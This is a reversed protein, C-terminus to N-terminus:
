EGFLLKDLSDKSEQQRQMPTVGVLTVFEGKSIGRLDIQNRLADQILDKVSDPAHKLLNVFGETILTNAVCLFQSDAQAHLRVWEINRLDEMMGAVMEEPVDLDFIEHNVRFLAQLEHVLVGSFDPQNTISDFLQKAFLGDKDLRAYELFYSRVFVKTTVQADSYHPYQLKLTHATDDLLLLTGKEKYTQLLKEFLIKHIPQLLDRKAIISELIGEKNEESFPNALVNKFINEVLALHEFTEQPSENRIRNEIQKCIAKLFHPDLQSTNYSWLTLLIDNLRQIEKEWPQEFAPRNMARQFVTMYAGLTVPLEGEQIDREQDGELPLCGLIESILAKEEMSCEKLALQRESLARTWSNLHGFALWPAQALEADSLKQLETEFTRAFFLWTARDECHQLQKWFTLFAATRQSEALTQISTRASRIQEMFPVQVNVSDQTSKSTLRLNGIDQKSLHGFISAGCVRISQNLKNEVEAIHQNDTHTQRIQNIPTSM